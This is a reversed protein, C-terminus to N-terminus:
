GGDLYRQVTAGVERVIREVPMAVVPPLEFVYRCLALGLLQSSVLGAREASRRWGRARAGAAGAARLRGAAEGGGVPNSAASRLLITM